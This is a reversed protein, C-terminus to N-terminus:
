AATAHLWDLHTEREIHELREFLNQARADGLRRTLTIFKRHLEGADLPMSPTGPFDEQRREFVRGDKLTIRTSTTWDAHGGGGTAIVRIRLRLAQMAADNLASESFSDPDTSDRLLAVAACFPISYSAMSMDTPSPNGNLEAMRRAGDIVVEAVDDGNFRHERRLQEIAFVSTHATIHCPYRKFCIKLTEWDKGLGNTLAAVDSEACYANLFGLKGELVTSPGDFGADALRAAVIGNEAARGLHLKKVMGGDSGAAFQMLGGCLSGAVGFARTMTQADMGFLQGTTAAAGFPGTLGPAHFGRAESTHKTAKGIRFMAECGAVVATLLAEGSSGREQAVALGASVLVAGPHVGSGPKRLSDMETAHCLVGNALAAAEARVPPMGDALVRSKGPQGNARAQATIIRSWPADQGYIAVAVTDILCDKARRLVEPPIDKNRLSAAYNALRATEHAM